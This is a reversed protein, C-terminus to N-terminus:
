KEQVEKRVAEVTRQFLPHCAWCSLREVLDEAARIKRLIEDEGFYARDWAPYVTGVAGSLCLTELRRLSEASDRGSVWIPIDEPVPITDGTFICRKEELLYSLGGCSHGPTGVVRLTLGPEPQLVDSDKLIQDVKVSQGALQYFNPIPRQRFQLDIDEIWPQEGEGAYVMCGSRAQIEATGGMHDPHAHTLFIGDLEDMTRGNQKLHREVVDAAGAVGSDILYCRQGLILYLYVYRQVEPTVSFDMRIQEIKVKEEEEAIVARADVSDARMGAIAQYEASGFCTDLAERSPFRIVILRQPQREASLGTVQETRLLYEGGYREVIPRVAEMYQDYEGRGRQADIYTDILFYCAM